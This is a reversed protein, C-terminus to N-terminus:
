YPDLVRGLFLISGTLNDRILFLFPHDARFVPIPPPNEPGAGYTAVVATAAAAETGKEDVNAYAEHVVRSIYLDRRGDMGSFNAKLRDFADPMGMAALTDALSFQSRVMFKPFFVHVRRSPLGPRFLRPLQTWRQLNKATLRGELNDLGDVNQPLLVIMSIDGGAYPMELVQLGPFEVYGFQNTQQMLPATVSTKSSVHFPQDETQGADFKSEWNGKFYIADVLVLRDNTDLMEPKILEPIKQDTRVSVWDNIKTRAAETQRVFDVPFIAAGYYQNCLALYDPRFDFGIQPWLSNAVALQVQRKEQIANLDTNLEAFAPHLKTAPLDLHLTRAMQNATKGTAGAYTMALATSISYPSFFVNGPASRLHAYLDVAFETNGAVVQDIEPSGSDAFVPGSVSLIAVLILGICLSVILKM